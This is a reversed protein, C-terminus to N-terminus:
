HSFYETISKSELSTLVLTNSISVNFEIGHSQREIHFTVLIHRSIGHTGQSILWALAPDPRNIMVGPFEAPTIETQHIFKWGAFLSLLM